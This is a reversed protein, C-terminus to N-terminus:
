NDKNSRTRTKGAQPLTKEDCVEIQQRKGRFKRSPNFFKAAHADCGGVWRLKEKISWMFTTERTAKSSSPNAPCVTWPSCRTSSTPASTRTWIRSSSTRASQKRYPPWRKTIKQYSRYSLWSFMLRPDAAERGFRTEWKKLMVLPMKKPSPSPPSHEADDWPRSHRQRCPAWTRATM